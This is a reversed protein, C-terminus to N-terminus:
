RSRTRSARYPVMAYGYDPTALLPWLGGLPVFLLVLLMAIARGGFASWNSVLRVLGAFFIIFNVLLFSGYVYSATASASDSMRKISM